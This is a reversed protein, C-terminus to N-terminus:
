CNCNSKSEGRMLEKPATIVTPSPPTMVEPVKNVLHKAVELFLNDVGKSHIVLLRRNVQEKRQLHKLFYLISQSQM